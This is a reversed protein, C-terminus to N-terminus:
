TAGSSATPVSDASFFDPPVGAVFRPRRREDLLFYGPNTWVDASDPSVFFPLDGILRIGRDHAYDRLRAEQSFLLFQAFCVDSVIDALERRAAAIAAPQREVLDAPWELYHVDNFNAKLARFLAYDELWGAQQHRFLEFADRVQASPAAVFRQWAVGLLRHKFPIVREFDVVAAPFPEAATDAKQLLGQEILLEPSTLLGNGAFSSM